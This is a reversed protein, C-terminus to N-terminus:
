IQPPPDGPHLGGGGQHLCTGEMPLGGGESHLCGRGRSCVFMLLFVVKGGAVENAPALFLTSPEQPPDHDSLEGNTHVLRMLVRPRTIVLWM